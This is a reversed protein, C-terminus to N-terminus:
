SENPPTLPYGYSMQESGISLRDLQKRAYELDVQFFEPCGAIIRSIMRSNLGIESAMLQFYNKTPQTTTIIVSDNKRFYTARREYYNSAM